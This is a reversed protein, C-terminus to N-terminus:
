RNSVKYAPSEWFKANWLLVTSEFDFSAVAFFMYFPLVYNFYWWVRLVPGVTMRLIISKSLHAIVATILSLLGLVTQAAYMNAVHPTIPAPDSFGSTLLLTTFATLFFIASSLLLISKRLKKHLMKKPDFIDAKGRASPLALGSVSGIFSRRRAHVRKDLEFQRVISSRHAHEPSRFKFKMSM